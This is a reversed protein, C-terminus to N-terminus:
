AISHQDRSEKIELKYTRNYFSERIQCYNGILKIGLLKSTIELTLSLRHTCFKYKYSASDMSISRVILKHVITCIINRYYEEFYLM